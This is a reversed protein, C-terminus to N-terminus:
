SSLYLILEVPSEGSLCILKYAAFVAKRYSEELPKRGISGSKAKQYLKRQLDQVKETTTLINELRGRNRGEDSVKTLTSGRRM